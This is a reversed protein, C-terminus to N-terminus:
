TWGAEAAEIATVLPTEEAPDILGAAGTAGDHVFWAYNDSLIPIARISLQQTM